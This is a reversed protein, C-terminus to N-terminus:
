RTVFANNRSWGRITNNQDPNGSSKRMFKEIDFGLISLTEYEFEKDLHLKGQEFNAYTIPSVGLKVAMYDSTIQRQIRTERILDIIESNVTAQREMM